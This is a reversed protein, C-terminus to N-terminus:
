RPVVSEKEFWQITDRLSVVSGVVIIAPHTIAAEAAIGEITELTGTVTRQKELTGWEILAVPTTEDKGHEVLQSCIYSLNQVGMYFVLTDIGTAYAKWKEEVFNGEHLHGTIMAFSSSHERHTVPIGAFMPAAIGATVGPVIEYSIGAHKLVAAEEAVRGFVAPDGGKLRTVTLGQSAKEVLLDNIEEQRLTHHKPLKGCYILEAEPKAHELLEANALRDYVIVDAEQICELGRVTILKVHGPGAGVLYVQGTAM